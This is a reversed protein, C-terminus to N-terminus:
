LLSIAERAYQLRKVLEPREPLRLLHWVETPDSPHAGAPRYHVHQMDPVILVVAGDLFLVHTVHANLRFVAAHKTRLWRRM